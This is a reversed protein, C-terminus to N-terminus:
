QPVGRWLAAAGANASSPTWVTCKQGLQDQGDPATAARNFGQLVTHHRIASCVYKARAESSCLRQRADTAWLVLVSATTRDDCSHNVATRLIAKYFMKNRARAGLDRTYVIGNDLPECRRLIRVAIWEKDAHVHLGRRGVM